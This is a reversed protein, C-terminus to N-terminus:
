IDNMNWQEFKLPKPKILLEFIQSTEISGKDPNYNVDEFHVKGKMLNNHISGSLIGFWNLRNM